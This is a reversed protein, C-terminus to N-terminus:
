STRWLGHVCVWAGRHRPPPPPCPNVSRSILGCLLSFIASSTRTSVADSEFACQLLVLPRFFRSPATVGVALAAVMYLTFAFLSVAASWGQLRQGHDDDRLFRVCDEPCKQASFRGPGPARVLVECGRLKKTKASATVENVSTRTPLPFLGDLLRWSRRTSLWLAARLAPPEWETRLGGGVVVPASRLHGYRLVM